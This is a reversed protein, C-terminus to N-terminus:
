KNKLLLTLSQQMQDVVSKWEGIEKQRFLKASPYWPSDSRDELWRWEASFPLMVWTPKGLVGGLHAISTDVTIILDLGEMLAATDEFDDVQDMLSIVGSLDTEDLKNNDKQLSLFSVDKKFNELFPYFVSVDHVSRNHDNHHGSSGKWALGIKFPKLNAESIIKKFKERKEQASSLYPKDFGFAEFSFAKLLFPLSMLPCYYDFEPLPDDRKIIKAWPFSTFLSYLPAPVNLFVKEALGDIEKLFRSFQLVDGAGQEGYFLITKHKLDQGEWCPKEEKRIRKLEDEAKEGRLVYRYEYHRWGTKLDGLALSLLGKLFKYGEDNPDLIVAQKIYPFAEKKRGLDSLLVAYIYHGYAYDPYHSILKEGYELGEEPRRLKWLAASIGRLAEQNFPDMELIKRCTREATDHDKKQFALDAQVLLNKVTETSSSALPIDLPNFEWPKKPIFDTM